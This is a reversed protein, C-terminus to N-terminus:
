SHYVNVYWTVGASADRLLPIKYDNSAQAGTSGGLDAIANVDFIATLANSFINTSFCYLSGPNAGDDAVYQMRMGMIMKASSATIGSPLYIGNNQVCIINSGPVSGAAFNLWTSSAASTGAVTGSSTIDVEFAGYGDTHNPAAVTGALKLIRGAGAVLAANTITMTQSAVAAGGIGITDLGGDIVLMNANGNSEFRFDIDASDENFTLSTTCAINAAAGFFITSNTTDGETPQSALYLTTANTITGSAKTILPENLALSAVTPTTGSTSVAGAPAIVIDYYATSATATRAARSVTILQDASSTDTNSGLVLANKGGDAYIAYQIGDTEVRFNLDASGENIVFSGLATRLQEVGAAYLTMTGASSDVWLWAQSNGGANAALLLDGSAVLNSFVLSDVALAPTVPTGILVGDLATNAALLTTGPMAGNYVAALIGENHKLKWGRHTASTAM